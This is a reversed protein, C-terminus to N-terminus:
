IFWPQSDVWLQAEISSTINDLEEWSKGQFYIPTFTSMVQDVDSPSSISEDSSQESVEQSQNFGKEKQNEQNHDGRKHDGTSISPNANVNRFQHRMHWGWRNRLSIRSRGPLYTGIIAWKNGLDNHLKILQEDEEPTWAEKALNPNLKGSWRERCQKGNRGPVMTAVMSWNRTGHLAIAQRLADDEAKTWMAKRYSPTHPTADGCQRAKADKTDHGSSIHQQFFM